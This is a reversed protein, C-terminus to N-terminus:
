STALWRERKRYLTSPSVGLAKAASPLSGGVEVIAAEIAIRELEDLTLGRVARAVAELDTTASYATLSASAASMPAEAAVAHLSQSVMPFASAPLDPGPHMVAARRMVNQLERVNGPWSHQELMAVQAAGLANFTKGEERAFRQLFAEALERVDGTRERLRPLHLPVVALRYFLDERFRGEAVERAPDRNTACVIRVDVEEIRNSGVRQITGTQLFRLLKVQLPLAMECIEDLFLTGKHAAQAAGIRDNVAGTFSGKIHGFMESELLNEPIAGCNLAIFPGTARGSAGHIAEACVEKGTGSEGTIFVTARSAAVCEIQRYVEQMQPSGGIFTGPKAKKGSRSTSAVAVRSASRGLELASAVVALMRTGSIPKVLFDFAGIRMAEIARSLSGDATAVIVPYTECVAPNARLWELGDADPLQLDLLIAGLAPTDAIASLAAAASHAVIPEYGAKEVQAAYALALSALDEVILIKERAM